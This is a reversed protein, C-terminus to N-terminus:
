EDGDDICQRGGDCLPEPSDGGGLARGSGCRSDPQELPEDRPRTCRTTRPKQSRYSAARVGGEARCSPKTTTSGDDGAPRRETVAPHRKLRKANGDEDDIGVPPRWWRRRRQGQLGDGTLVRGHRGRDEGM